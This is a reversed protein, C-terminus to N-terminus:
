IGIDESVHMYPGRRYHMVSHIDYPFTLDTPGHREYNEDKLEPFVCHVYITLSNNEYFQWLLLHEGHKIYTRFSLAISVELSFPIM